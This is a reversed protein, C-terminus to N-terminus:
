RVCVPKSGAGTLWQYVSRLDSAVKDWSFQTEALWRGRGGREKLESGASGFLIRLGQSIGEVDHGIQIAAGNAFGQPVNCRPTALVPKSFSWAELVAMPLGESLSPLISADCRSLWARKAGGYQAGAFVISAGKLGITELKGLDVANKGALRKLKLEHGGQDWGAIVLLWNDPREVM